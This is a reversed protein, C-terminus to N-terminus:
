FENNWIDLLKKNDKKTIVSLCKEKDDFVHKSFENLEDFSISSISELDEDLTTNKGVGLLQYVNDLARFLFDEDAFIYDKRTLNLAKTYEEQTIGATQIKKIEKAIETLALEEDKQNAQISINYISDFNHFRVKSGYVSYCLGLQNRLREFLRSSMESGFIQNFLTLKRYDKLNDIKNLFGIEMISQNIPREEVIYHQNNFNYNPKEVIESSKAFYPMFYKEIVNEVRELDCAGSVSIIVNEATYFRNYFDKLNQITLSSISQRTGLTPNELCSDQFFAKSFNWAVKTTAKDFKSNYEEIIARREIDHAKEDFLSNFFM